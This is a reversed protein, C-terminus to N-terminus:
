SGVGVRVGLVELGADLATPDEDVVAEADPVYKAIQREIEGVDAGGALHAQSYLGLDALPPPFYGQPTLCLLHVRGAVDDVDGQDVELLRGNVVRPPFALQQPQDPM